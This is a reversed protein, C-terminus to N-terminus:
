SHIGFWGKVGEGRWEHLGGKCLMYSPEGDVRLQGFAALELSRRELGIGTIINPSCFYIFVKRRFCCLPASGHKPAATTNKAGCNLQEYEYKM